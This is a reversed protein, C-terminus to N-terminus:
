HNNGDKQRQRMRKIYTKSNLRKISGYGELYSCYHLLLYYMNAVSLVNFNNFKRAYQFETAVSDAYTISESMSEGVSDYHKPFVFLDRTHKSKKLRDITEEPYDILLSHLGLYFAFYENFLDSKSPAVASYAGRSRQFPLVELVAYSLVSARKYRSINHESTDDTMILPDFYREKVIAKIVEYSQHVSKEANDRLVFEHKRICEGLWSSTPSDFFALVQTWLSHFDSKEM